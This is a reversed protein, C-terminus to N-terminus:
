ICELSSSTVRPSLYTSKLPEISKNYMFVGFGVANDDVKPEDHSLDMGFDNSDDTEDDREEYTNSSSGEEGIAQKEQRLIEFRSEKSGKRLDLLSITLQTMIDQQQLRQEKISASKALEAAVDEQPVLNDAFTILRQKRPVDNKKFTNPVNVEQDGLRMYGKCRGSKVLSVHKEKPKEAAKAKDIENRKHKYYKYGVSQKIADNIIMNPIEM